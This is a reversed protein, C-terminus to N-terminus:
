WVVKRNILSFLKQEDIISVSKSKHLIIASTITNDAKTVTLPPNTMDENSVSAVGLFEDAPFAYRINNDFIILVNKFLKDNDKISERQINPLNLLKAISICMLLEGNVNIIGHFYENTRSPVFHIYRSVVAEQFVNTNLGLWEDAIRFIVLSTKNVSESEKPLSIISTWESILDPSIDREFLNRGSIAYIPCNKCHHYDDLLECVGAGFVGISEWCKQGKEARVKDVDIM